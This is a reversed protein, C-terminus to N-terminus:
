GATKLIRALSFRERGKGGRFDTVSTAVSGEWRRDGPLLVFWLAGCHLSQRPSPTSFYDGPLSEFTEAGIYLSSGQRRRRGRYPPAHLVGHCATSTKPVSRLFSSSADTGGQRGWPSHRAPRALNTVGNCLETMAM